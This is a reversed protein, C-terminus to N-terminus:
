LLPPSIAKSDQPRWKNLGCAAPAKDTRHATQERPAPRDPRSVLRRSEVGEDSARADESHRNQHDVHNTEFDDRQYRLKGSLDVASIQRYQRWLTEWEFSEKRREPAQM